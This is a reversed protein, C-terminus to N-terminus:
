GGSKTVTVTYVKSNDGNNVTISVVNEGEGWTANAGNQVRAKGVKVTVSAGMTPVASIADQANTTTATYTDTGTSFAPSLSLGGITLSQLAAVVPNAVDQAFSMTTVPAKGIGIAVFGEAIVPQGDYRAIGKVVTQDQIYLPQDSYGVTTGAREALLYLDGYGGIITDNPMVDDSFVVLDGGVVPMTGNSISVIAGTSDFSAAEAMIKTYTTENMAWFKEGRSYKGKAAGSALAIQQFLKLGTDSGSPITIINSASLDVWPRAEKPYNDPQSKQALRTAIGLPMKVGLGFLIAKDLAIGIAAGMGLIVASLLAGDTDDLTSNCLVVYGGVKYGDVEAQNLAFQLENLAGCAETWVAEPITGMIPQRAQGAVPVLRVRRIMKSYDEINQRILDLVVEPILLDGGTVTRTQSNKFKTRFQTLFDQVDERKIFAARQEVNMSGFARLQRKNMHADDKREDAVPPTNPKPAPQKSELGRLDEQTTDIERQLADVAEQHTRQEATFTDVLEEVSRLQEDTTAEDMASALEAERTNLEETKQALQAMRAQMEELKKRLLLAKLAM